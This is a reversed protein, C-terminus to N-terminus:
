LRKNRYPWKWPKRVGLLLLTHLLWRSEEADVETGIDRLSASDPAQCPVKQREGKDTQRDSFRHVYLSEGEGDLVFNIQKEM